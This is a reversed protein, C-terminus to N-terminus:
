INNNPSPEVILIVKILRTIPRGRELDSVTNLLVSCYMRKSAPIILTKNPIEIM